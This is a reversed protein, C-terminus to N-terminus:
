DLIRVGRYIGRTKVENEMNKEMQNEMIPPYDVRFGLGTLNRLALGTWAQVSILLMRMIRM